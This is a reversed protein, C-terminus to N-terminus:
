GGAPVAPCAGPRAYRVVKLGRVLETRCPEFGRALAATKARDRANPGSRPRPDTVLVVARARRLAATIAAPEAEVGNITGSDAGSELLALDRLGAFAAPDYLAAERRAGPVYLVADGPQALERVARAAAAVDNPRAGPARLGLEVPLLALVAVLVALGRGAAAVARTAM